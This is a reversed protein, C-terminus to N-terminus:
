EEIIIFETRRNLEHEANSCSVGNSCKNLLKTEGYGVAVLRDSNIGNLEMYRIISKARKESLNLNYDDPARSDTHSGIEIKMAPYKILVGIVKNLEIATDTSIEDSDM